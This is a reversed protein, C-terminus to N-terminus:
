ILIFLVITFSGYHLLIAIILGNEIKLGKRVSLNYTLLWLSLIQLFILLITDFLNFFTIQILETSLLIFHVFLYIVMPYLIIPFSLFFNVTNEKNRYFLRCMVEVLLFYILFNIIFGISFLIHIIIPLTYIDETSEIYFLTLTYFGNLGCLITGILLIMLSIVSNYKRDKEKFSIFKKPTLYMFGKLLPSSFERSSLYSASITKINKKMSNYAHLGLETLYYKKNKKQQIM